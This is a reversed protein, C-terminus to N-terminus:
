KAPPFFHNYDKAGWILKIDNIVINRTILAIDGRNSTVLFEAEETTSNEVAKITIEEGQESLFINPDKEYYM